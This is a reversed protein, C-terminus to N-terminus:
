NKSSVTESRLPKVTGDPQIESIVYTASSPEGHDTFRLPGSAGVYAIPKHAKVLTMCAAFSICREGARTVGNIEKAVAAPADTGAVAAALATIVVADYAQSAYILDQLGPNTERLRKVFAEDGADPSTGKMGALVGPDQPSIQGALTNTRIPFYVRKRRPGLGKKIMDALIRVSEEFGILVIANPNKAKVRQIDKDHNLANPDYSFSDLIQGGSEQIKKATAERLNNSYVDDSSIVVATSNHDDTVLKGLVSGEFTTSPATRFYLGHSPHTILVPSTNSPSFMIVGACTVKDIVNLAVPSTAPGIIVDVGGSLLADVSQSATDASPNGEDRQNADDLKVAIGPIGGADNIDKMALHVGADLAPGTYIFDGTKPLLTGLSLVGDASKVSPSCPIPNAEHASPKPPRAVVLVLVAALALCAAVLWRYNLRRHDTAGPRQSVSSLAETAATRIDLDADDRLHELVQRATRKQGGPQDSRLLRQLGDVACLRKWEADSALLQELEAPLPLLAQPNKALHLQGRLGDASMTPTQDPTNRRVQDYVYRYLEDVSVQGDGDLDAAGTVLGRVVADTFESNYAYEQKDSATIVVRGRGGLQELIEETGASRRRLGRTFAGSYCCDLLLVIRQSRSHDMREKVWAASIGTADLRGKKTNAAVFYLRGRPDLVGHCSFYLLLLDDPKRDAFFDAIQESVEGSPKNLLTGVTFEGITPDALVRRFADIDQVPAPLHPFAPDAYNACGILLAIRPDSM